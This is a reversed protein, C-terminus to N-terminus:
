VIDGSCRFKDQGSDQGSGKTKLKLGILDRIGIIM